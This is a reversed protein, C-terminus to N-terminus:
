FLCDLLMKLSLMGAFSPTISSGSRSQSLGLNSRVLLPPFRKDSGTGGDDRAVRGYQSPCRREKHKLAFCSKYPRAYCWFVQELGVHIYRPLSDLVRRKGKDARVGELESLYRANSELNYEHLRSQTDSPLQNLRKPGSVDNM